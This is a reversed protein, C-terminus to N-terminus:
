ATLHKKVIRRGIAAGIVINKIKSKHTSATSM